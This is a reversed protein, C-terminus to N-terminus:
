GREEVIEVLHPEQEGIDAAQRRARQPFDNAAIQRLVTVLAANFSPPDTAGLLLGLDGGLYQNQTMVSLEDDATAPSGALIFLVTLLSVPSTFKRM